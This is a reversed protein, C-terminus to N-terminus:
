FGVTIPLHNNNECAAKSINGYCSYLFNATNVRLSNIDYIYIYIYPAGLLTLFALTMYM